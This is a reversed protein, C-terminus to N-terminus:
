EAETLTPFYTEAETRLTATHYVHWAMTMWCGEIKHLDWSCLHAPMGVEYM